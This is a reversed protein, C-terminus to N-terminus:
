DRYFVVLYRVQIRGFRQRLQNVRTGAEVPIEIPEHIGPSDQVVNHGKSVSLRVGSVDRSPLDTPELAGDLKPKGFASKRSTIRRLAGGFVGAGSSATEVNSVS